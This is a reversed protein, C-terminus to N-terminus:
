RPRGPSRVGEGNVVRTFAAVAGASVATAAPGGGTFPVVTGGDIDEPMDTTSGVTGRLGRLGRLGQAERGVGSPRPTAAATAAVAAPTM